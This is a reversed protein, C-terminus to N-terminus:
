SEGEVLLKELRLRTIQRQEEAAVHVETVPDNALRARALELMDEASKGSACVIYVHGFRREYAANAAALQTRIDASATNVAWQEDSSWGSARGDPASAASREGIRPHHAFAELWDNPNLSWWIADAAYFLEDSSRFPRREIMEEVWHTAGCCARFAEAARERPLANLEDLTV